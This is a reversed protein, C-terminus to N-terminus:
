QPLPWDAFLKIEVKNTFWTVQDIVQVMDVAKEQLVRNSQNYLRVFGPADGSGGPSAFLSPRRFVIVRFKGDASSFTKYPAALFYRSAGIGIGIVILAVILWSFRKNM